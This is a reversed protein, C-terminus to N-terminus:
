LSAKLRAAHFGIFFAVLAVAPALEMPLDRHRPAARFGDILGEAFPTVLFWVVLVAFALSTGSAWLREVYEDRLKRVLLMILSVLLIGVSLGKVFDPWDLLRAAVFLIIAAAGMNAAALYLRTRKEATM